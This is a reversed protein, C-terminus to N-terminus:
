KKESALSSENQLRRQRQKRDETDHREPSWGSAGSSAGCRCDSEYVGCKLCHNVSIGGCEPTPCTGGDGIYNPNWEHNCKDVKRWYKEEKTIKHRRKM